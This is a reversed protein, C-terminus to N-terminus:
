APRPAPIGVVLDSYTAPKIEKKSKLIIAVSPTSILGSFM